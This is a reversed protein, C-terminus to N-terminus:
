VTQRKLRIKFVTGKGPKSNVDIRGGHLLVIENAIALGLGTGETKGSGTGRYYREFIHPVDEEPMGRGNDSICIIVDDGSETVSVKVEVDKDNHVFANCIINTICREMLKVDIGCKAECEKNLQVTKDHVYYTSANSICKEVFDVIDVSELVPTIKGELLFNSTKLDEVLERIREESKLMQEAYNRIESPSYEYDQDYLLESYGKIASLPSKIDHSINVIWEARLVDNQKLITELREVSEFVNSFIKNNASNHRTIKEGKQIKDIDEIIDGVPNTIKKSFVIASILVVVSTVLSIVIICGAIMVKIESGSNFTYKTVLSSDCGMLVAYGEQESIDSMYVTYNGLRDSNLVANTLELLSYKQPLDGKTNEEFVVEGSSNIIQLWVDHHQLREKGEANLEILSGNFSIHPRINRVLYQPMDTDVRQNLFFLVFCLIGSIVFSTTIAVIIIRLYAKIIQKKM